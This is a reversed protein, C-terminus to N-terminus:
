RKGKKRFVFVIGGIFILSALGIWLGYKEFFNPEIPISTGTYGCQGDIKGKDVFVNNCGETSFGCLQECKLSENGLCKLENLTCDATSNSLSVGCKGITVGKDSWSNQECKLFNAGVCSENNESCVFNFGCKGDVQGKNVFVNNECSVLSQGECKDGSICEVGNKPIKVVLEGSSIGKVKCPSEGELCTYQAKTNCTLRIRPEGGFTGIDRAFCSSDYIDIERVSESESSTGAQSVLSFRVKGIATQNVQFNLDKRIPLGSESQSNGDFLRSFEAVEGVSITNDGQGTGTFEFRYEVYNINDSVESLSETNLAFPLLAFPKFYIAGIILGFLLVGILIYVKRRDIKQKM